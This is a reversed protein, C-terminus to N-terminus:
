RRPLNAPAAVRKGAAVGTAARLQVRSPLPGPKLLQLVKAATAQQQTGPQAYHRLTVSQYNALEHGVARTVAEATQGDAIALSIHLGRMAHACVIPAGALDCIRKVWDLVWWRRGGFLPAAPTKGKALERFIPQLFEPVAQRRRGAETKADQVLISQGRNDLHRVELEAVEGARLGLYFAALAAAPGAAGYRSPRGGELSLADPGYQCLWLCVDTFRRAEDITLQQKGRVRKGTGKVGAAPNLRIWRKEVCWSLFTKACSLTGRHTDVSSTQCGEYLKECLAPTLRHLPAARTKEPFFNRLRIMTTAVTGRKNGRGNPDRKWKEYDDLASGVTRGEETQATLLIELQRLYVRRAREAEEESAYSKTGPDEGGAVRFRYRRGHREVASVWCSERRIGGM